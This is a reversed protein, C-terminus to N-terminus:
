GGPEATCMPVGVEEEAWGKVALVGQKSLDALTVEDDGGFKIM